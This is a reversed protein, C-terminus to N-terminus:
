GRDSVSVVAEGEDRHIAVVVASGADSYQIANAILQRLVLRLRAANWPGALHGTTSRLVLRHSPHESAILQCVLELLDTAEAASDPVRLWPRTRELLTELRNTIELLSRHALTLVEMLATDSRTQVLTSHLQHLECGAISIRNRLDHAAAALELQRSLTRDTASM